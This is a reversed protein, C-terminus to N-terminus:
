TVVVFIIEERLKVGFIWRSLPTPKSSSISSLFKLSFSLYYSALIEHSM